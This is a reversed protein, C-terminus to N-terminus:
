EVTLCGALCQGGRLVATGEKCGREGLDDVLAGHVRSTRRIQTLVVEEPCNGADAVLGAELLGAPNM